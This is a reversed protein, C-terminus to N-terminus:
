TITITIIIIIIIVIFFFIFGWPTSIDYIGKVIAQRIRGYRGIRMSYGKTPVLHRCPSSSYSMKCTPWSTHEHALTWQFIQCILENNCEWANWVHRLRKVTIAQSYNYYYHYYYNSSVFLHYTCLGYDPGSFSVSLSRRSKSIYVCCKIEGQHGSRTIFFFLFLFGTSYHDIGYLWVM